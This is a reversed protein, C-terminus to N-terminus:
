CIRKVTKLFLLDLQYAFLLITNKLQQIPVSSLTSINQIVFNNKKITTYSSFMLDVHKSLLNNKLQQM